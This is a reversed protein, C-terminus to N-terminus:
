KVPMTQGPIRNCGRAVATPEPNGRNKGGDKKGIQLVHTSVPSRTSDEFSVVRTNTRDIKELAFKVQVRRIIELPLVANLPVAFYHGFSSGHVHFIEAACGWLGSGDSLLATAQATM